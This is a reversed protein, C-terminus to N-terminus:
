KNLSIMIKEIIKRILPIKFEYGVIVANFGVIFPIIVVFLSFLGISGIISEILKSSSHSNLFYDIYYYFLLWYVVTGFIFVVLIILFLFLAQLSHFVIFRNKRFSILFIIPVILPFIPVLIHSVIIQIILSLLILLYISSAIINEKIEM